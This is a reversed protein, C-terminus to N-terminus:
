DILKRTMDSETSDTFTEYVEEDRHVLRVNTDGNFPQKTEKNEPQMSIIHIGVLICGMSFSYLICRGASFHDMDNFFCIGSVAGSIIYFSEYVYIVFLADYKRLATNLLVLGSLAM